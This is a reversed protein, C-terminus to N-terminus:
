ANIYQQTGANVWLYRLPNGQANKVIPATVQRQDALTWTEICLAGGGLTNADWTPNNVTLITDTGGTAGHANLTMHMGGGTANRDCIMVPDYYTIRTSQEHNFCSGSKTGTGSGIYESRVRTATSDNTWYWAIGGGGTYTHHVYTDEITIRDCHNPMIPSSSVRVGNRRGDVEVNKILVDTCNFLNISGTEGPPGNSTGTIGTIYVNDIVGKANELRLGNYEHGLNTGEIMFNRFEVTIKPDSAGTVADILMYPSAGSTWATTNSSLMKFVTNRGSGVFGRCGPGGSSHGMRIGDKYGNAFNNPILFTGEPFTLIKNGTVRNVVAQLDDGAVYLDEYRVYTPGTPRTTDIPPAITSRGKRVLAGSRVHYVSPSM